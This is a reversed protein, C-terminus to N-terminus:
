ALSSMLLLMSLSATPDFLQCDSTLHTSIPLVASHTYRMDNARWDGWFPLKFIFRQGWLWHVAVDVSNLDKSVGANM